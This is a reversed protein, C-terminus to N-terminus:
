GISPHLAGILPQCRCLSRGHLQRDRDKTLGKIWKAGPSFDIRSPYHASNDALAHTWRGYRGDIDIDLDYSSTM